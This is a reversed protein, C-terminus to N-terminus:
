RSKTRNDGKQAIHALYCPSWDLGSDRGFYGFNICIGTKIASLLEMVSVVKICVGSGANYLLPIAFISNREKENKTM